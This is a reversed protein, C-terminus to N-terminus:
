PCGDHKPEREHQDQAERSAATYRGDDRAVLRGGLRRDQRQRVRAHDQAGVEVRDEILSRAREQRTDLHLGDHLAIPEHGELDGRQAVRRHEVADVQQRPIAQDRDVALADLPGLM